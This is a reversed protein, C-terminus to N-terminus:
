PSSKTSFRRSFNSRHLLLIALCGTNDRLLTMVCKKRQSSSPTLKLPRLTLPPTHASHPTPPHPTYSSSPSTHSISPLHPIPPYPHPARSLTFTLSLLHTLTLILPILPRPIHSYSPTHILSPYLVYDVM